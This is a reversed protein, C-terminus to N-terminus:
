FLLKRLHAIGQSYLVCLIVLLCITVIPYSCCQSATQFLEEKGRDVLQLVSQKGCVCSSKWSLFFIVHVFFMLQFHLSHFVFGGWSKNSSLVSYSRSLLLQNVSPQCFPIPATWSTKGRPRSFGTAPRCGTELSLISVVRGHSFSSPLPTSVCFCCLVNVGSFATQQRYLGTCALFALVFLDFFWSIFGSNSLM